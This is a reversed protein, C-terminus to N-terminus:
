TTAAELQYKGAGEVPEPRVAALYKGMKQQENERECRSFSCRNSSFSREASPSSRM